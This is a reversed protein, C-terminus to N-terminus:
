DYKLESVYFHNALDAPSERTSDRDFIYGARELAKAVFGSCIMEGDISFDFKGGFLCWLGLSIDTLFGYKRGVAWDAFRLIQDKDNQQLHLHVVVYELDKYKEINDSTVGTHVLSEVIDGKDSVFLGAHNWYAERRSFRRRQGFQILRSAFKNGHLLFFDGPQPFLVTKGKGYFTVSLPYDRM